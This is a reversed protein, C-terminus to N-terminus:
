KVFFHIDYKVTFYRVKEKYKDNVDPFGGADGMVEEISTIYVNIDASVTNSLFNSGFVTVIKKVHEVIKLKAADTETIGEFLESVNIKEVREIIRGGGFSNLQTATFDVFDPSEGIKGIEAFNKGTIKLTISM